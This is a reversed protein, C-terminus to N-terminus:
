HEKRSCAHAVVLVYVCLSASDWIQMPDTELNASLEQLRASLKGATSCGNLFLRCFGDMLEYAAEFHERVVQLRKHSAEVQSALDVTEDVPPASKKGIFLM